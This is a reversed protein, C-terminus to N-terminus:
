QRCEKLRGSEPACRNRLRRFACAVYKGRCEIRLHVCCIDRALNPLSKLRRRQRDSRGCRHLGTLTQRQGREDAKLRWSLRPALDDLGLPNERYECRLNEVQGTALCTLAALQMALLLAIASNATKM